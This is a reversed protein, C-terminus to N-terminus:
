AKKRGFLKLRIRKVASTYQKEILGYKQMIEGKKTGDFIGRLVLIAAPDNAFLGTIRKEEETQILWQDATPENSPVNDFPSAKRGEIDCLLVESELFVDDFRRRWSSAISRMAGMLHTVFDVDNNWRRGEGNRRTGELTSRLAEGLLDSGTMGCAARGLCRVRFDAFGRLRLLDAKTLEEIERDIKIRELQRQFNCIDILLQADALERPRIVEEESRYDFAAIIMRQSPNDERIAIALQVGGPVCYNVLVVTFPGCERYLRLGEDATDATRAAFGKEKLIRLFYKTLPVDNEIVLASRRCTTITQESRAAEPLSPLSASQFAATGSSSSSLHAMKM